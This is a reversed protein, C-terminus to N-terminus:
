KRVKQVVIVLVEVKGCTCTQRGITTTNEIRKPYFILLTSNLGNYSSLFWFSRANEKFIYYGLYFEVNTCHTGGGGGGGVGRCSLSHPM